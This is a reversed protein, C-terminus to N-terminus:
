RTRWIRTPGRITRAAPSADDSGTTAVRWDRHYEAYAVMRREPDWLVSGNITGTVKGAVPMGADETVGEVTVMGAVAVGDEVTVRGAVAIHILMMGRVLTDGVLTHTRIWTTAPSAGEGDGAVTVTDVWSDGPDVWVTPMSPLLAHGLTPFLYDNAAAGSVAPFSVLEDLGRRSVMALLHGSVDDLDGSVVGAGPGSLAADFSTLRGRVRMRGSLPSLPTSRDFSTAVRGSVSTSRLFEVLLTMSHASTVVSADGEPSPMETVITDAITYVTYNTSPVGYALYGTAAPVGITVCGAAIGAAAATLLTRGNM